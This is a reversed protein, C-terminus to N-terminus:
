DADGYDGDRGADAIASREVAEGSEESHHIGAGGIYAYDVYVVAEAGAVYGGEDIAFLDIRV